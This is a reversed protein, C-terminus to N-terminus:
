FGKLFSNVREEIKARQAEPITGDPPGLIEVDGGAPEHGQRFAEYYFDHAQILNLIQWRSRFEGFNYGNYKVPTKLVLIFLNVKSLDYRKLNDHWNSGGTLFVLISIDEDMEISALIRNIRASGLLANFEKAMFKTRDKEYPVAQLAPGKVMILDVKNATEPITVELQICPISQRSEARFWQILFGSALAFGIVLIFSGAMSVVKPLKPKPVRDWLWFLIQEGPFLFYTRRKYEEYESGFAAQCQREESKSLYYYLWLMVFFAIYSIFKSWTLIIGTCFISLAIYQPHRFFRYIGNKVLGKKFIKASYVQFAGVLFILFGFVALIIGLPFLTHPPLVFYVLWSLATNNSFMEVHMVSGYLFAAFPTVM